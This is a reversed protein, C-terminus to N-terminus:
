KPVLGPHHWEETPIVWYALPQFTMAQTLRIDLRNSENDLLDRTYAWAFYNEVPGLPGGGAMMFDMLQLTLVVKKGTESGEAWSNIQHNLAVGIVNCVIALVLFKIFFRDLGM